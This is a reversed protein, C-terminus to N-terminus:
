VSDLAGATSRYRVQYTNVQWLSTLDAKDRQYDVVTPIIDIALGGLTRDAMVKSHADVAIPDALQDPIAGRVYVAIVVELTWDLKCTSYTQARDTAPEIVLAPAEDRAFAEARSRYIRSGVQTTGALASALYALIQERRSSM